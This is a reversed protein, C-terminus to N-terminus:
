NEHTAHMRAVGAAAVVTYTALTSLARDYAMALKVPVVVATMAIVVTADRPTAGPVVKVNELTPDSVPPAPEALPVSRVVV